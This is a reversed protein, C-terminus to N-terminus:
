DENRVAEITPSTDGKCGPKPAVKAYFFGEEGTNGTNWTYDSGQLSTTDQYRKVDDGGGRTGIQEWVWVTRDKACKVPKPSIVKGSMETNVQSITVTVKARPKAAQAGDVGVLGIFTAGAGVLLAAATAIGKRATHAGNM